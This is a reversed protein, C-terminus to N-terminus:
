QALGLERAADMIRSTEDEAGTFLLLAQKLADKAADQEGLVVRARILKIWGDADQPSQALRSAL